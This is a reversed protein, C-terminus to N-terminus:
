SAGLTVRNVAEVLEVCQSRPVLALPQGDVVALCNTGDVRFLALTFEPFDANDLHVTLSIEERGSPQEDTFEAATLSRLAARLDHIEFEAGNYTWTDQAEEDDKEPVACVFSHSEGDVAADISLAEDFDATFIEQHRLTDYSVDTLADYESRTIRYVIQSDGVRAYCTVDPLEASEKEQAKEYEALEEPDQSLHLVFTGSAKEESEEENEDGEEDEPAYDVAVTLAPADLGCSALEDETVNYSVYDTLSLSRLASLFANVNETDLPSGDTFYIDEACISKGQEDRVATYNEDGEFVIKEATGIAPVTDDLIMDSLQADFEDLPDHEALYARGDGLSVYRQADMKSYGGLAVTFEEDETDICVTCVPEDLGYQSYDEVDDIVFAATFSEFQSLLANIKEADVPFAADADYTWVGDKTFSYSGSGNTWSLATVSEPPIELIVEGSNKIDEKKQEYRSVAFAAACLALLVGTLVCLRTRKRM